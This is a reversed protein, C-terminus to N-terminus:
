EKEVFSRLEDIGLMPAQQDQGSERDKLPLFVRNYLSALEFVDDKAQRIQPIYKDTLNSLVASLSGSLARRGVLHNACRRCLAGVQEQAEEPHQRSASRPQVFSFQLRQAVARSIEDERLRDAATRIERGPSVVTEQWGAAAPIGISSLLPQLQIGNHRLFHAAQEEKQFAPLARLAPTEHRLCITVPCREPGGNKENETWTMM